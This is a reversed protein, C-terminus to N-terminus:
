SGGGPWIMSYVRRVLNASHLALFVTMYIGLATLSESFPVWANLTNVYKMATGMGAIATTIGSTDAHPFLDILAAAASMFARM